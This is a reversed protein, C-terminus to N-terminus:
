DLKKYPHLNFRYGVSWEIFDAIHLDMARVAIGTFINSDFQYKLGIREYVLPKVEPIQKRLIYYGPQLALSLHGVVLEYSAFVSLNMRDTQFANNTRLKGDVLRVTSNSEGDYTFTLGVGVKSKYSLQRNIATSLGFMNYYVGKYQTATDAGTNMYIMNKRGGYVSIDVSTNKIFVPLAKKEKPRVFRNVYYELTIKPSKLNLGANPVKLRGNSFHSIGYGIRIDFHPSLEYNFNVGLDVLVTGFMGMSPNYNNKLANFTKWDGMLGASIEFNFGLKKWRVFPAKFVGYAGIPTGLEPNDQFIACYLGVGYEPYDYVEEWLYKGTSQQLFQFSFAKFRNPSGPKNRNTQYYPNTPMIFGSQGYFSFIHYNDTKLSDNNEAKVAILGDFMAMLFLIRFYKNGFVPMFQTRM